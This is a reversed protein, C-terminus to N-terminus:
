KAPIDAVGAGASTVELAQLDDEFIRLTREFLALLKESDVTSRGAEEHRAILTRQRAVIRKGEAVHRAAM